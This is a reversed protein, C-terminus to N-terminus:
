VLSECFALQTAAKMAPLVPANPAGHVTLLATVESTIM